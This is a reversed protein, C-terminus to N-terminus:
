YGEYALLRKEVGMTTLLHLTDTPNDTTHIIHDHTMEGDFTRPNFTQRIAWKLTIVNRNANIRNPEIGYVTPIPSM